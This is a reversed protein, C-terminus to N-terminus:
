RDETPVYRAAGLARPAPPALLYDIARLFFDTRDGARGILVNCGSCLCGRVLGDSHRHDVALAKSAGTARQCIACKGGQFAKITAYEDPTIGYTKEIRSGHTRAKRQRTIARHCAGCRPGPHPLKRTGSGCDKCARM